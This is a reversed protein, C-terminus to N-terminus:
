CTSAKIEFGLVTFLFSFFFLLLLLISLLLLLLQRPGEEM